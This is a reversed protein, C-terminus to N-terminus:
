SRCASRLAATFSEALAAVTAEHHVAASYYWTVTFRGGDVAAVVDILHNREQRLGHEPGAPPLATSLLGSEGQEGGFQGLYNFSIRPDPDGALEGTLYRLAGYGVGRDPVARLQRKVTRMTATWEGAGGDGPEPLALAVPYVSTFWGVTRTLDVDEFLEERGHGELNVAVQDHGTWERLTRALAALLVDNIQTRFRGPVQHLLAHTEDADLHAQVAAQDGVLNTGDPTDLPVAFEATGTVSRWYAVQGAFGGEQAHRGLRDAWHRVSSSKPGLDTAGVSLAQDYATALDGLIIRWSVGDIVLHHATVLLRLPPEAADRGAGPAPRAVVVRFLPGRELDLGAKTRTALDLWAEEEPVGAPLEHVTFVEDPEAAAIQGSWTGDAARTFTSRLADHQTLLAEVAARLAGLDTGPELAFSTSMTYHGPDVPHTDFFWERVPTPAVAGLVTGQQAGGDDAVQGNEDVAAALAAVTPHLFVDRSTVVLGARRARSVVQLSIISDGGLDFFDDEVGVQGLGLVQAWVECLVRETETRPATYVHGATEFRPAPLARRDLKGAANLPLADLTVFAAPVMHDPLTRALHNRVDAQDAQDPGTTVLYAALYKVGPQDERAVVAAQAIGPHTLLATEIEGTEIRHGRIKIQHDNRGAYELTGDPRRRVLDGTRYLRSGPAYPHAVFRESTLHPQGHYGRALSGALYLEGWAGDPVPNLTADLVYASKGALARGIPVTAAGPEPNEHSFWGTAYVTAETPGYINAVTTRPLARRTQDLLTTPFAEGALVLLKPDLRTAPDAMLAQFASPVGSVLTGEWVPRDTLSLINHAIELTGGTALTGFLEFVSVDFNLSTSFFTHAFTEAGLTTAWDVLRSMAEHGIVVGKPKGTSGSTYIVYAANQPATPPHPVPSDDTTLAEAVLAADVTLHVGSDRRMHRLRDAPYEPDLPVYAAGTKLVALAAIVLDPTRPLSIGIRREPGAGLGLLHRALQDSRRGLEAYTLRTSEHLLAVARPNRATQEAIMAVVSRFARPTEADAAAPAGADAMTLQALPLAPASAAEGALVLWHHCLQAVTSADFLDTNFEAVASLGGDESQQFHLSLEFQAAERPIPQDTVRLGPLDFSGGPANQLAVLAQVLPTRSTDREPALEEILRSFPVDQHAFADLTTTRVDDLLQGFSATADIRTRLVLTNVFFGVLNELETRERGSVVTGVAIDRQGTYRSLVLQTVATLVMFLSAGGDRAVEALRGALAAPVEFSHVAGASTRVAPRPRDTPLELPEIGDLKERWHALQRDLGEGELRDRQWVAFDPYQVPLPPLAPATGRVASAYLESLERTVIGMSWGDTVIHHMALVLVHEPETGHAAGTGPVEALLVRVLPGATLDFPEAAEARLLADLAAADAPAATRVPVAMSEHVVQVGRGAVSAFTTRLSEHRDVLGAVATRLAGLDVTGTLRLAGTVTYEVGGPTFNELFWLREQTFSLPLLGDRPAPTVAAEAAEERADIEAALRAVTPHDFLARPTLHTRLATRIRSTVKLSTISDGGLAFFDDHAGIRGAGLVESWLAALAQETPTAPATYAEADGTLVPAPLARRDVKGNVTLPIADVVTFAAPVMYEPLSGALHARLGGALDPAGAGDQDQDLVVYAALYKTGPRDERALVCSHTVAPHALLATEIEATEIRYGRIKVQTDTRGLFDLRGDPRRRTLDGTRYLRRGPHHPDAVFREATLRARGHYGRALGSGGLYLEGPVGVPVPRLAGDLVYALTDDMPTGLPAPGSAVDETTLPGSVAFTTTETPGYGNVLTLDPHHTLLTHAAHHPVADGGTWIEKLGTFCEPDEEVLVGFLAATIWLATVGDTVAQRITATTLDGTAVTVSGGNLLPTWVEYTAADFSHPSHFLVREHAHGAFRHDAALATIDAHTVAVGKPVGTSGSTFMVYALSDPRAAPPVPTTRLPATGTEAVPLGTLAARDRLAADTVIVTAGGAEVAQRIREDPYGAFLPVYAGGAKLVALMAVVVDASRELLLAVRSEAAADVGHGALVQALRTARADLAAYTLAHGDCEVATAEPTAAVREAFAAPVTRPVAAPDLSGACAEVARQEEEALLPLRGVPLGESGALATVAQRLRAALREATGADFLEPDYALVMELSDGAASAVLTLAYNTSEVASLGRVGLGYGGTKEKDVPYNEFVVLSEFLSTGPAVDATIDSLAVYEHGRAEALEAQIGALWDAAPRAPDVTVRVPLTNIFLGLVSEAGPLDAPRGSVTTGFVVDTVGAQQGLVLAWAGQVLANLTLRHRRAFAGARAAAAPDLAVEVRATSAGTRSHGPARDYPLAVPEEFGALSRRWYARGAEQDQGALWRLYDGFSGRVAPAAAPEGGLAAYEAVVDGLLAANSWGDLLLHHFTWVVQVDGAGLGILAVRLLPGEALDVGRARDEALFDALLLDREAEAAASWDALHVPAELQRRVVQVPEPVGEWVLSVRLADARELVRRWATALREVDTVGELTFTLQELYAGSGPDALAHFLMGSQLPTLPYIDEVTRGDGAIRDVEAQGLTVLPFDSPTCGGAGPRACHEAFAALEAAFSEALGRVTEERYTDASYLWSFVLQGDQVAGVVDLLHTRREAPAHEGGVSPLAAGFLGAEDEDGSVDFQGHYNFSVLPDLRGVPADALHRLAGYGIGRQPVARLQEKVCKVADAWGGDPDDGAPEPLALAIPHLSTFWGVTRTLDVDEFLEERGHGELTVAVRDHGTWTRLTRALATLLVDNAQTRYLASGQQLVAETQAATLALSVSAQTAVTNRGGPLDVPLAAVAQEGVARWYPIEDDFGGAATHAALREAWQRVSTGKPGLEARGGATIQEYATALDEMLVRLSVGDMVLHHAVVALRAPRGTGQRGVVFRILPGEALDFGRHTALVAARWRDEPTDAPGGGATLDHVDLVADTDVAGLYTAAPRPGATTDFTLRLADHHALVATVAARLAAADYAPTLAVAVSFNFHGPAAPHTEFFWSSAPLVPVPGSLAGQEALAGASEGAPQVAPALAAVTPNLFVDRSTLALGARRARSVVQLSIISDGGLDFFNDDVGVREVGLIEAWIGALLQETETRPATYTTTDATFHPAPLAARDLKGAANLPLTDLTVFAAPVMYEPLTAALLERLETDPVEGTAVVYGVLHRADPTDERLVVAARTVLPHALLATEIEGTEVRHGRIKVQHDNRGAYELTGDPRRRVLDGTRYLRQGAHYPHAVFRAATLGPQGHYGRALSGALYLEGQVGDPVPNLTADLVYASKGALARGIPVATGQPEPDEQSFWGTAYVTAETPGYINAVDTQPLTRRVTDLLTTPFAEGALVLLSPDLHTTPDDLVATVASPVASVLTGDWAPRDTLSLINHAIDLTGGAALTGFLEFVSVDFNLSTSFFTHRFTEEGLTTAWTVLRTLAHHPIVVGKPKGTSGSTYIVYAANRPSVAPHPVPGDDATLAEALVAADVTLHVGSDTQMHRLRDAPYEPDLPVYAAGTKLVALAAIVLDPTRPLSIGIRREPGAGLGLLHRALQDSRRGLEAYTLSTAGHLLAVAEPRRAIRDGTMEMVTRFPGPGGFEAAHQPLLAAREAPDLMTLRALPLAPTSVAEEALALWHRCLRDVTAADFLGSSYEAVGVLAGDGTEQFHLGLDFQAAARPIEYEEATLGPLAFSGGPTNQLTIMAQVLPTRSPDREPALEEILRSFPVDQHAFADLTTSKVEDLLDTFTRAADVQTRLVLTNVFFGVLGELETRERGSVATGLALDRRGTYRALTLQTVATLGMFLSAGRTRGLEALRGALAAPVTFLRTSGEATRVQPRPRDTPLDLPELGALRERWHALQADLADGTHQERQWVAFDPYQVPLAPLVADEGRVAAAYLESLERTVIGMSWGDTVIHHMALVLVHEAPAVRVLLVRLLPGTRLDFPRVAEARLVADVEDAGTVGVTRVPVEVTDHVVQVGRGDVADFTTRLAEHRAVLGAVASGLAAEDLTGTLRLAGVVNYEVSGPTFNELFWLREQPLSMPLQGGRAVPVVPTGARGADEEGAGGDIEAALRAVTPHDFLVRPSLHTGLATRARSTVKLSSISDGGLGFFDDDVGVRDAGLVEAWIACLARETATRPETYATGAPAFEPAPLARRDVKGNVTLPIADVATFAAPVMYEPLSAALHRRLAEPDLPRGARTVLYAALYKTGPGDTRALVAAHTLDPHTLLATEIEATEIRYGRIKVQTDTRGLFDIRGDARWRALDGTRYLRGGPHHPDPIFREATLRPQDHYGRAVGSGGLYLEGPVGVPVPRLAGDLIYTYMNDMPTGLPAPGSAVDEATLPGSVAFTTTETPGYGNVLTLGPHHALLTHAAHHPVADGGTWIEQLGAFCEPDEEVLVGFLAATIWLATVGETVAERITATTLDGTAVTLTRGNLLPVWVEYTAADFSHPSHFLVREHAHGAFRHDAALAVIDAHTVGVGKPVGTSGSTFMVYALSGGRAPAPLPTGTDPEAPLHRPDFTAVGALSPQDRDTLVLTTGSRGLIDRLREEPHGTHLPVYAGGAKLVALMAVVVDASRELLLGVRSEATVGREALARALRDTRRDLARYTLSSGGATIAVADPTAAARRAFVEVVSGDVPTRAGSGWEGLLRDREAGSLLEIEAVPAEPREVLRTVAAALQGALREATAREFLAPDYALTLGLRDGTAAAILTLAYHTAEVAEAARVGVGHRAAAAEDVPYNEFVVLSDFLSAGPTLDTEVDSLAVYEYRRSEAQQDQIGRLWDAARVGPAAGVRVPLTNIFLGLLADAGPLDAPRGSVTTGFVVDHRGAYQSLVLAWAGQVLANQTIRHDRAYAGARGAVAADLAVTVRASSRGRRVQEPTHDYPLAVPEEYGALSRRWHGRGAEQDQAALWRLYDGFSGRATPSATSDGSLAAYEALVDTLFAATSWGDLLLHHFTWVLQVRGEGPLRILTVRMLPATALDIGRARDEDLFERLFADQAEGTLATASHDLFTVPVEARRRVVQVPERVGEWVLGVRLADSREVTRQWADALRAPDDVGDLTLVFQELYAPSDPEALAHFLMGSQLPTLPYVDEVTRGDGAIRDVEAQDLTVLSFDSPSRGGAGPEACHAVFAALQATYEEVLARVTEERHVGASYHWTFVLRGDLLGATVDLLHPRHERPSHEGGPNLVSSLYWSDAAADPAQSTTGALDLRGLYNFSILPSDHEAFHGGLHRLAGYGIGRDPVARLQEKVSTVAPGWGEDEPLALAVPHISTFWGATRTLDLDTFLEERGHGELSVPVRDRGTWNRLTRALAALLADNIQTRYVAPVQQLLQDTQARTLEGSVAAATVTTADGAPDDLPLSADAGGMVSEWYPLQRDFGGEATHRALREAWARVSSTKPGLDVPSGVAAQAYGRRLDDLLIRWTVGDVLLHHAIVALRVPTEPGGTGVLVRVLPSGDLRFGTQAADRLEQWGPAAPGTLEHVSLIADLGADPAYRATRVGDEDTAFVMRLADHQLLLARVAERLASLDTGPPLQAEAAMNFHEPAARHHAFFWERIPTTPVAGSLVGQEAQVVAGAGTGAAALHAALAAVTQRAFIDRTTLELGARRAQSVVQISLISDGGLSFFNDQTGVRELGLTEAWITCLTQETPTSPAVYGTTEEAPAPLARRDLKGSANLPLADLTVFAAPVMYAPLRDGLHARLADPDPATGQEAPVTYAVIRPTGPRDERVLAAAHGVEPHSTLATEIEGLEIRLGRIKVQDDTRGLYTLTGDTNWRVLDGTRYLRRGPHHPDAVFRTATLGPQGHYGRALGTGSVHLEGPVGVPVLRLLTDRVTLHAEAVPTGIPPAGVLDADLATSISAAVTIETPGYANLLRRGPAWRRVLDPTLAEGGTALVALDPLPPADTPISALVTPPILTHTIRRTALTDHLDQGALAHGEDPIVLTAAGSLAMLLEMVSADFGASALQLVRADADIAFREGLAATFAAIGRHTVLVGKPRGTSGSTYIMYAGADLPVAAVPAPGVPEPLEHWEFLRQPTVVLAAGSDERVFTFREEPWEPDMPVYIGGLRTIALLVTLWEVGRPLAVGVRTEPGVGLAALRRAVREVRVDTEAYSLTQEGCIVATGNTGRAAVRSRWLAGLTVPTHGTGTRSVGWGHLLAEREEGTVLEVQSLPRAAGEGVVASALEVWHHCLREVTAADFLDTSYEAAALLRGDQEAFSFTLDFQSADRTSPVAEARLGPLAFEARPTNQLVVMAQVLPTRSPDREPALAEVLRSFPVDQHAFADLVTTRVRALLEEFSDAREIRTRLVVTNVFFGVLDELAAEDRGSVGTGLAIEERGSWRALVLQTLATVVMFLSAGRDRGLANLRGALEAPIAFHHQAGASTRVAPRPRDTPLELPELGALRERWYGIREELAEATMRERQRVAFDPYQVPLEPLNAPEGHVAATYLASLERTIIGMSWGDTVIHHIVLLLTHTDPEPTAVLLVRLLPGTRLDFPVATEARLLADLEADSAATATRVPVEVTPHVVQTGQGEVTAFTTRLAEHRAVLGAVAAGLAGYDVTGTLRLTGSVHYETAGPAFDDLFWLREQAFSLPLRGERPVPLLPQAPGDEPAASRARDVAEALDALRPADFLDRVALHAGLGTRVRSIVRTALLSHGGLAFFDDEAGVREVGLVEAWVAALATQTGPAPAVYAASESWVPAPLARRDLKGSATAPLADLAVFAAPVMYDPLSRRVLERLDRATPLTRGPVPVLYGAIRATGEADERVAAAADAVDPHARLAAEIEGPEIRFGRVKVQDDARGLHELTGDAAWRVLDGTRFLRGGSGFPDAVFREATHGPRNTYGRAVGAGAVYLEGPVGAPVPALRADLVRVHTNWLPTGVRVDGGDAEWALSDASIESSGYLNLLRAHPLKARFRAALPRSLPEGSSVWTTCSALAAPDTEDLLVALLSPVLTLRRVRHRRVLEALAFPDKAAEDPALVVHGGHVLTGLLETVSDLFGVSSKALVVADRERPYRDAFWAWRSLLGGHLGLVAKPRGTSGSTHIVYAAHAGTLAVQPATRPLAATRERVLDVRVVAPAEDEATGPTTVLGALSDTTVVTRVRSEALMWAVRERPLAPDVPLHVGGAKLVALAAVVLDTTRPLCVAVPDEPRVGSAILHHALQNARADLAAYTLQEDGSTLAPADPTRAAQEAFRGPISGEAAEPREAGGGDALLAALEAGAVPAAEDLRVAPDAVVARALATFHRGMREVTAADFLATRYEIACHLPGGGNQAAGEVFEWSVEYPSSARALQGREVRLGEFAAPEAPTNQLVVMSQVLPTRSTDREPAVLEVLREFPVDQHDFAALVTERVQDLFATFPLGPDLRSRLVLINVFFGVLPEVEARERGPVATGVAIDDQGSRRALLLQTLATLTVFLSAGRERGLARLGDAVEEPLDFTHVAGADGAAATRPRDSPLELPQVGALQEQWYAAHRDLADDAFRARQWAAFDAYQVALPAPRAAAREPHLAAAYGTSLERLVIEVSAGDTVIHHMGLLFRYTGGAAGEEAGGTGTRVLLARVLPGHELDYPAALETAFLLDCATEAAEETAHEATLDLQRFPVPAPPRVTQRAVGEVATFTTRLAEHRAVVANLAARFAPVDLTGTLRLSLGSNNEASGQEYEEMFWLRQQAFSLPLPSERDARAIANRGRGRGALRNRLKEQVHEPLSSIRAERSSAADM